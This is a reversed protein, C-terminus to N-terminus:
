AWARRKVEAQIGEDLADAGGAAVGFYGRNGAFAGLYADGGWGSFEWQCSGV